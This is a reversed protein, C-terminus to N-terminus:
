QSINISTVGGAGMPVGARARRPGPNSSLLNTKFMDNNLNNKFM